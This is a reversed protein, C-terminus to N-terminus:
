KPPPNALLYPLGNNINQDEAWVKSSFGKPLGSQLEQTTKGKLSPVNGLNGTGKSRSSSTTDWYSQRIAGPSAYFGVFGGIYSNKGGLVEGSSYTRSTPGQYYLESFGFFGGVDAFKRGSVAGTAYSDTVAGINYGALGGVLAYSRGQVAGTAFSKSIIGGASGVLGGTGVGFASEGAGGSVQGTAYSNKIWGYSVGALGGVSWYDGGSVAGTAQSREIIGGDTGVLGGIAAYGAQPAQGSGKVAMSSSSRQIKGNNLGVLGGAFAEEHAGITATGSTICDTLTGYNFGAVGAVYTAYNKDAKRASINASVSCDSINGNSYGVLVGLAQLVGDSSTALSANTFNIHRVNAGKGLEAFLGVYREGASDNISLNSITNSLGEFTGTFTTPVPVSTYTGDKSADYSNALAYRGKPNNAIDNALTSIDAVLAFNAGDISLQSSTEAFTINGGDFSLQGHPGGDKTVFSLAAVGNVSISAEVAISQYADLTLSSSTSWSFATSISIDNAQVGSGTTTVELNGSALLSELDGVNLVADSATPMCVGASCNMNQTAATSITVAAHAPASGVLVVLAALATRKSIMEWSQISTLLM